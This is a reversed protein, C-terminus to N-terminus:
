GLTTEAVFRMFVYDSCGLLNFRSDSLVWDRDLNNIRHQWIDAAANEFRSDHSPLEETQWLRGLFEVDDLRGHWDVDRVRLVDLVDRRTAEPIM